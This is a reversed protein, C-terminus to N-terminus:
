GSDRCRARHLESNLARCHWTHPSVTLSCWRYTKRGLARFYYIGEHEMIRSVFNLDTEHYQVYDWTRYSGSSASSRFAMGASCRNSCHRASRNSFIRSDSRRSALWGLRVRAEYFTITAVAGNM